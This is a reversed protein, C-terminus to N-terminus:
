VLGPKLNGGVKYVQCVIEGVRVEKDTLHPQYPIQLNFLVIGALRKSCLRARDASLM